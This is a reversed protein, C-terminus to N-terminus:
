KREELHPTGEDMDGMFLAIWGLTSAFHLAVNKLTVMPLAAHSAHLAIHFKPVM